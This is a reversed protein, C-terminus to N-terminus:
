SSFHLLFYWGFERKLVIHWHLNWCKWSSIYSWWCGNDENELLWLLMMTVVDHSTYWSFPLSDISQDKDLSMCIVQHLFICWSFFNDMTWLFIFLFPNWFILILGNSSKSFRGFVHRSFKQGVQDSKQGNRLLQCNKERSADEQVMHCLSESTELAEDQFRM